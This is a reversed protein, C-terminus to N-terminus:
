HRLCATSCARRANASARWRPAVAPEARTSARRLLALLAVIVLLAGLVATVARPAEFVGLVAVAFGVALVIIRLQRGSITVRM